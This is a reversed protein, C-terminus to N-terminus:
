RPPPGIDLRTSQEGALAAGDRLKELYEHYARTIDSEDLLGVITGLASVVPLERLGSELIRELATHLDDALTLTTPPLMVDDAVVLNTLPGDAGLSRVIDGSVLGILCNKDDVVPFTDQWDPAGTVIAVIDAASSKRKITAVLGSRSGIDTVRLRKLIDLTEEGAHVPSEFRTPPQKPYLSVRRLLVFALGECLMLPVLLDYTGALECVMVLSSVPAHALGGYFTGMGVLAFAGPDISPDVTLQAARGFAGGVLAGIALSPGFDGGSGGSGITLSTALVKMAALSALLAVAWWGAPLWSAGTIAAQAAGYGDGLIGVGHHALGLRPNVVTIWALALIGLAFGGIAPRLWKPVNIKAFLKKSAHLCRVFARAVLSLVIAFPAFLLLDKPKFPYDPAHAFLSGTHPFVLIFISYSTVSALIAPILAESEFDDRYLIETALLAAGLPTGFIASLGAATGAVLLLRRERATVNLVGGVLSALAAGIQMTPGERGASGGSGLTLATALMKVWAVRKRVLGGRRHFSEIYASGGGGATEPALKASLLGAGLGGLAPVFLLVWPRMGGPGFHTAVVPEGTPRLAEYGALGELLFRETAQLLVYFGCAVLGVVAGVLLAHFVMREVLGRELLTM